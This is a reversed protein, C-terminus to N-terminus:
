EKKEDREWKRKACCGWFNWGIKQWSNMMWRWDALQLHAKARVYCYCCCCCFAVPCMAQWLFSHKEFCCSCHSCGCCCCWDSESMSMWLKGCSHRLDVAAVSVVSPPSQQTELVDILSTEYHVWRRDHRPWSIWCCVQLQMWHWPSLLYVCASGFLYYM